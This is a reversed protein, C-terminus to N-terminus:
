TSDRTRRVYSLIGAAANMTKSGEGPPFAYFGVEYGAALLGQQLPKETKGYLEYVTRDCIVCCKRKAVSGAPSPPLVEAIYDAASALLGEEMLVDYTRSTHVTLKQM